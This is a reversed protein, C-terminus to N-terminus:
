GEAAIEGAPQSGFPDANVVILHDKPVCGM